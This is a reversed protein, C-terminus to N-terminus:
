SRLWRIGGLRARWSHLNSAFVPRRSVVIDTAENAADVRQALATLVWEDLEASTPTGDRRCQEIHRRRLPHMRELVASDWRWPGRELVRAVLMAPEDKLCAVMTAADCAALTQRWAPEAKSEPATALAQEVMRGDAVVGLSDLEELLVEITRRQQAELRQMMWKRDAAPLAHITLAARRADGAKM